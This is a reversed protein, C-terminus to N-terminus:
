RNDYLGRMNSFNILTPLLLASVAVGYLLLYRPALAPDFSLQTRPPLWGRGLIGGFALAGTTLFITTFILARQQRFEGRIAIAALLALVLIFLSPLQSELRHAPLNLPPAAYSIDWFAWSVTPALFGLALLFASQSGWKRAAMMTVPVGVLMAEGVFTLAMYPGFGTLPFLALQIRYIHNSLAFHVLLISFLGLLIGLLPANWKAKRRRHLVWGTLLLLPSLWVGVFLWLNFFFTLLGCFVLLATPHALLRLSVKM